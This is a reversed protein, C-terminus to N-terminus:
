LRSGGPSGGPLKDFDVLLDVVLPHVGIWGAGNYQLACRQRFLLYLVRDPVDVTPDEHLYLGVLRNLKEALPTDKESYGTSGLLQKYDNRLSAIAGDADPSSITNAHRLRASLM